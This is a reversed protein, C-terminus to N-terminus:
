LMLNILRLKVIFAHESIKRKSVSLDETYHIYWSAFLVASVLM